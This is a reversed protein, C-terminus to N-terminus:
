LITQFFIGLFVFERMPILNSKPFNVLLGLFAGLGLIFQTDRALCLEDVSRLLWDDLYIHLRFRM